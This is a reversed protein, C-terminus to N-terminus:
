CAKRDDEESWSSQGTHQPAANLDGVGGGVDSLLVIDFSIPRRAKTRLTEASTLSLENDYEWM